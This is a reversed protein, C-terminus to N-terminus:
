HAHLGNNKFDISSLTTLLGQPRLSSVIQSHGVSLIDRVPGLNGKSDELEIIRGPRLSYVQHSELSGMISEIDETLDPTTPKSGQHSGLTGNFKTVLERLVVICARITQLWDWSANPGQASYMKQYIDYTPIANSSVFPM